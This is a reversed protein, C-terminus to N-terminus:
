DNDYDESDVEIFDDNETEGDILPTNQRVAIQIAENTGANGTTLIVSHNHNIEGDIEINKPTAFVKDALIKIAFEQQKPNKDNNLYKTLKECLTPTIENLFGRKFKTMRHPKGKPAGNPNGSQGKQWVLTYDGKYKQILQLTVITRFAILTFRIFRIFYIFRKCHILPEQKIM